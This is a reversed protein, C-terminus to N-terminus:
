KRTTTLDRLETRWEPIVVLHLGAPEFEIMLFHTGDRSLDYDTRYHGTFLAQRAVVRIGPDRVLTAAMMTNNQWYYLKNGDPSWVARIGGGASIQVRGSTEPFPRVYVEMRGSEDSNYAIFHGDPSFRGYVETASPSASVEREANGSDFSFTELNFDGNYIANFVTTRGDPSLDVYWPNHRPEGAEVPPGSGDAPQWWLAARGGQTSGYLIRKGDSSWNPNRSRGNTTLPSLTGSAFDLTWLNTGSGTTIGLAARTNDPSLRVLGFERPNEFADRAAGKQDVWVLRRNLAGTAYALGGNPSMYAAAYGTESGIMRVSDLVPIAGGTVRRGGADFPAAMIVGDARVYVLQGAAVGLPKAGLIGLPTVKGDDLSTVALESRDVTGYWIVFVVTRGDSLVHPYEHSLEKRATNVHTFQILAGGAPGLRSLGKQGELEGAGVIIDGSPSWDIGGDDPIDALTVIPGGDFPAKAIKRRNVTYAVWKGDPSFVPPGPNGDTGPIVRSALQDLRRVYLATGAGSLTTGMGSASVGVFVISHGDPSLAVGGNAGLAPALPIEVRLPFGADQPVAHRLALGAVIALVAAVACLGLVFPDRFRASWRQGGSRQAGALNVNNNASEHDLAAAFAAASTFRDAPIKALATLVAAEVYAPVTPRVTSIRPPPETMVKAVIAQVSSGTFPPDATLMEYTVAGLAYIDSRADINKEGMAQEPSMYQPTGLSLGTQTMRQGGAQQVALAIGFDAVLAHGDQLLINEPKIDRHIVNHGHAYGLADAVERAIRVADSIPLQRERELRARLTEGTVLPMVYYLLGDADGSDLLPLIHPHQLRATTRIESLFRDAGLAAGLDPHLVKIAVDRDHKIDHALYVTAMGGAGIERAISYWKGLTAQLRDRLDM